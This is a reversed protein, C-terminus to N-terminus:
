AARAPAVAPAPLALGEIGLRRASVLLWVYSAASEESVGLAAALESVSM